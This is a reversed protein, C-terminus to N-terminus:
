AAGWLQGQDPHVPLVDDPDIYEGCECPGGGWGITYTDTCWGEGDLHSSQDHGCADCPASM